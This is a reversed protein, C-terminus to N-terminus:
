SDTKDETQEPTANYHVSFERIAASVDGEAGIRQCFSPFAQAATDIDITMYDKDKLFLTINSLMNDVMDRVMDGLIFERASMMRCHSVFAAGKNRNAKVIYSNIVAEPDRTLHVYFANRGHYRDLRGICYSFRPDVAIHNDPFAFRAKGLKDRNAEHSATYNSLHSCAKAFTVSGCRGTCLVFVNM